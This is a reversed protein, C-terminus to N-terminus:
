EANEAGNVTDSLDRIGGYLKAESRPALGEQEVCITDLAQVIEILCLDILLEKPWDDLLENSRVFV